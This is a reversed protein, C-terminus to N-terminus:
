RNRYGGKTVNFYICVYTINRLMLQYILSVLISGALLARHEATAAGSPHRRPSHPACRRQGRGAGLQDRPYSSSHSPEGHRTPDAAPREPGTWFLVYNNKM